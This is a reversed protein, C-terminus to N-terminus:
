THLSAIVLSLLVTGNSVMMLMRMNVSDLAVCGTGAAVVSHDNKPTTDDGKGITSIKRLYGSTVCAAQIMSWVCM